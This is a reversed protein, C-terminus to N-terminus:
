GSRLPPVEGVQTVGEANALDVSRGTAIGAPIVPEPARVPASPIQQTGAEVFLM